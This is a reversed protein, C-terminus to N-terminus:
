FTMLGGLLIALAVEEAKSASDVNSSAAATTEEGTAECTSVKVKCLYGGWSNFGTISNKLSGAGRGDFAGTAWTYGQCSSDNNCRAQTCAEDCNDPHFYAFGTERSWDGYIPLDSPAFAGSCTSSVEPEKSSSVSCLSAGFHNPECYGESTEYREQKEHSFKCDKGRSCDGAAFFRCPPLRRGGVASKEHAFQCAEGRSCKGELFFMCLEKAKRPGQSGERNRAVSAALVQGAYRAGNLRATCHRAEEESSLTVFASLLTGGGTKLLKVRDIAVSEEGCKSAVMQRVDDVTAELPLPRVFVERGAEQERLRKLHQLKLDSEM